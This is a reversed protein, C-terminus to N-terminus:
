GRLDRSRYGVMGVAGLALAVGTMITTAPGNPASFPVPALHAFPSMDIVWRPAQASEAVVQVLFGGVAPVAGVVGVARPLWGVALVGAGLCLLAVPLANWTGALAAALGLGGGTAAVGLWTALGAVTVLVAMGGGVAVVEAGLLRYRHLPQAALLTLTRDAEAAAFASMRDAAFVGVPVALLAFLTAAYGEVSALSAFGAQGAADAFVPNEKLFETMTVAILGILLFYAGMSTSWGVLPRLLRRLAFAEVSGLLRTRPARGAAAAVIGGRVDRRTAAAVAGILLLAAAVALAGLPLWQNRAYPGSIELLGFPSLWRLWALAAVGDAVMRALLTLGLVAVAAGTAASRASFLQATLAGAGVFFVGLVGIGTAHVVAGSVGTGSVALAVGVAAAVLVSAVALVGLHRVVVSRLSLRGALLLDWHGADEEGRTVRTTALISWVGLLVAVVTGTRWVTFGGPDDLAVPEGFLTRIAPNAALADLAATTAPDTMLGEYTVVVVATMGTSVALVILAGRRILRTALRTVATGANDPRLDTGSRRPLTPTAASM